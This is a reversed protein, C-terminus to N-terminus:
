FDKATLIELENKSVGELPVEYFEYNEGDGAVEVLYGKSILDQKARRYSDRKLGWAECAVQSLDFEYNVQNKQIYLWLKLSGGDLDRM